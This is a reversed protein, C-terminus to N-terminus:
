EYRLAEIPDLRSAQRAPYFGFFVGVIAAFGFSLLISSPSVLANWGTMRALVWSGVVGLLVGLTGGLLSLVMAEVLFQLQIDLRRAGMAMRIGIERTRETVSVLMINMIGIGGVLLSVSAIGALLLTFVQSAQAVMEIFEAQNRIMFDDDTGQALRHRKRLVATMEKTAEVTLDMSRAEAGIMRVYLMGFVRKMATTIPIIIQDDPNGFPGGAGKTTLLGVVDFPIGRVLISKGVASDKGFLNGATTSGIVAVRKQEVVDRETFFKGEQVSFNRVSPFDPTTGLITTNTNQDHYKVQANRSVEPETKLVAPCKQAIAEADELTLSQVSGIGGRVAGQRTQGAMVVLVNTGMRQIQNITKQSAGRGIALMTIVASVGIIVGLMTLASRMKNATLGELSVLISDLLNM